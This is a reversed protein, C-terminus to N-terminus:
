PNIRTVTSSMRPAMYMQDKLTLTGTLVRGFLPNYAYQVESWVLSTNPVALGAPVTVSQGVSYAAGNLTDSWTITPNGKSDISVQSVTVKLNSVAYPAIVSSSAALINSMDTSHITTMRSALDAVTRATLSVKRDAAIGNALEVSGLYLTLMVPLLLGFEVASLGQCDKLFGKLHRSIFEPYKM